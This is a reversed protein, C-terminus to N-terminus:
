FAKEDPFGHESPFNRHEGNSIWLARHKKDACWEQRLNKPNATTATTDTYSSLDLIRRVLETAVSMDNGSDIYVAGVISEFLDEMVSPEDCIGLKADGEGVLLYRQIGLRATLLSLNRKDSLKSRINSFDGECLETYLGHEYRRTKESLLLSVISCSLVSDGFFELM